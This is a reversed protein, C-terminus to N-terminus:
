IHKLWAIVINKDSSTVDYGLSLHQISKLFVQCRPCQKLELISYFTVQNAFLHCVRTSSNSQGLHEFPLSSHFPSYDGGGRHIVFLSECICNAARRHLESPALCSFHANLKILTDVSFGSRFFFVLKVGTPWAVSLFSRDWGVLIFLWYLTQHGLWRRAILSPLM